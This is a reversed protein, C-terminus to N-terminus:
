KITMLLLHLIYEMVKKPDLPGVEEKIEETEETTEEDLNEFDVGGNMLADLEEQTM